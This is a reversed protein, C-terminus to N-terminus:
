EAPRALVRDAYAAAREAGEKGLLRGALQGQRHADRLAARLDVAPADTPAQKARGAFVRDTIEKDYGAVFGDSGDNHKFQRLAGAEILDAATEPKEEVLHRVTVTHEDNGLNGKALVRLQNALATPSAPNDGSHTVTVLLQTKM